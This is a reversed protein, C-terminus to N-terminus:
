QRHPGTYLRLPPGRWPGQPDGAPGLDRSKAARLARRYARNAAAVCATRKAPQKIRKCAKLAAALKLKAKCRTLKHGTLGFCPPTPKVKLTVTAPASSASESDTGAYRFRDIGGFGRAPTYTLIGAASIASLRGHAPRSVIRWRLTQSPDQDSCRLAIRAPRDHSVSVAQASCTPPHNAGVSVTATAVNSTQGDTDVARFTFSDTGTFRATPTYSVNGSGDISGLTGHGPGSAIAYVLSGAPDPNTCALAVKRSTNHTTSASINSCVPSAAQQVTLSATAINSDQGHSDTAKFTFGDPGAYGANPTYTVHGASDISGLTGHAPGSVVSYTLSDGADPDSCPLTIQLATSHAATGSADNCGPPSDFNATVSKDADMTLQCGAGSCDGSWGLFVSGADPAASLTVPTGAAFAKSCTSGCSIGSPNSTITGSGAASKTVTLAHESNVTFQVTTGHLASPATGAIQVTYTGPPTSAGATLMLTSSSGSTVSSPSFSASAGSPLDYANLVVSEPTGKTLTTAVTTQGSAGQLASAGPPTSFSFDNQGCNPFKFSAIYTDWTAVGGTKYLENAYWFTCDDSPDINMSSYDGWRGRHEDPPGVYADSENATGLDIVAEGQPMTALPDSALRGTWAISPHAVPSTGSGNSSMSYGLALDGAQDAALSGIWRWNGDGASVTSQQYVSPTTAPSRLEYWRVGSVSSAQISHDVFLSEHDGFNRYVLRDMLRDDLGDLTVSTGPQPVCNGYTSGFCTPTFNAVTIPIASSLTTNAPTTWDVHFKWLDLQNYPGSCNTYDFQTLYEPSGNPPPLSGDVSAPLVSFAVFQQPNPCAPESPYALFKCQQTAATGALMAARDWACAEVGKFATTGFMNYTVYYADPWVGVKPYDNIAYPYSFDYLSYAGTPDSTKSVAICQFSPGTDTSQHPLSFQTILWRDAARDYRVIPDGDNRSACGNGDTNSYGTWLTNIARASQIVAHTSKSFVEYGGNVTEVYYSSGVAGNTDPPTGTIISATNANGEALFNEGPTPMAAQAPAALILVLAIASAGLCIINRGWGL